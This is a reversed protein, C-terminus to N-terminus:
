GGWRPAAEATLTEELCIAPTSIGGGPFKLNGPFKEQHLNKFTTGASRASVATKKKLRKYFFFTAALHV